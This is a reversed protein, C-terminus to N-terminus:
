LPMASGYETDPYPFIWLAQFLFTSFRFLLLPQLSAVLSMSVTKLGFRSNTLSVCPKIILSRVAEEWDVFADPYLWLCVSTTDTTEVELTPPSGKEWEGHVRVRRFGINNNAIYALTATKYGNEELWPSWKLSFASGSPVFDLDAPDVQQSNNSFGSITSAISVKHPGSGDFRAMEQVEWGAEDELAAQTSGSRSFYLVSIIVIENADNKYALLGRGPAIEKAWSFSIIREDVFRLTPETGKEPIPLLAGLGWLFKWFKFSRSRTGASITSRPNIHEGLTVISGNTLMATLIPRSNCGMGNPSWELRIVQSLSSGAMTIPGRGVGRFSTDEGIKPPPVRVGSFACLQANIAPDPRLIGSTEFALSFQYESVEKEGAEVHQGPHLYSPLYVSISDDAAM